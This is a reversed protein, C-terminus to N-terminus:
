YRSGKVRTAFCIENTELETFIMMMRTVMVMVMMVKMMMIMVRMLMTTNGCWITTRILGVM